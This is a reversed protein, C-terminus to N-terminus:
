QLHREQLCDDFRDCSYKCFGKLDSILVQNCADRIRSTLTDEKLLKERKLKSKCVSWFQEIPSLEPSYPPLQVCRYGRSEIFLKIDDNTHIPANDMILYNDKFIDPHKDMEDITDSLFNFYHGTVTGKSQPQAPGSSGATKRKKSAPIVRPRRVKIIVVGFACTARLITTTKARTKPVKVVARSRVKSWAISRKMNIHFVAEDIFVCNSIYDMDTNMWEEVWEKRAKIKEPSNRDVSHFHARKLSIKCEKTVFNYLDTKSIVLDIFSATLSDMMQELVLSPEEDILNVLHTKHRDDMLAPRGVPRGSGQKRGIYAQTNRQDDAVWGQATRPTIQLKLAAQRVSMGREYVLAFLQEKESDKYSKYTNDARNNNM